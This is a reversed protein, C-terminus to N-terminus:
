YGERVKLAQEATLRQVPDVVLLKKILDQWGGGLLLRDSWTGM